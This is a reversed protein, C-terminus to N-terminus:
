AGMKSAQLKAECGSASPNSRHMVAPGTRAPHREGPSPLQQSQADTRGGRNRLWAGRRPANRLGVGCRPSSFANGGSAIDQRGPTKPEVGTSDRNQASQNM